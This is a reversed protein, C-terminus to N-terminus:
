EKRIVGREIRRKERRYVCIMIERGRWETGGM